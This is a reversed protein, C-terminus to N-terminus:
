HHGDSIVMCEMLRRSLVQLPEGNGLVGTITAIDRMYLFVEDCGTLCREELVSRNLVEPLSELLVNLMPISCSDKISPPLQGLVHLIKVFIKVQAERSL